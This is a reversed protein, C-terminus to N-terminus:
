EQQRQMNEVEAFTRRTIYDVSVHPYTDSTIRIVNEISSQNPIRLKRSLTLETFLQEKITTSVMEALQPTPWIRDAEQIQKMEELVTTTSTSLSEFSQQLQLLEEQLTQIMEKQQEERKFSLYLIRSFENLQNKSKSTHILIIMLVVCMILNLVPIGSYLYFLIDQVNM